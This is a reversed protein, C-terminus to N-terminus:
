AGGAATASTAALRHAGVRRYAQTPSMAVRAWARARRFYLQIDYELMFGYGGHFHLSRYTADRATESAFAFAMAALLPAREPELDFAWAAERALLGAGDSEAASDALRHAVAQFAGIKQGFAEREKVYDVGIELSREAIAALAAATLALWEDLAADFTAAADTGTALMEGDSVTVDALPMAGSNEPVVRDAGIPALVLDGDIMVVVDTAIAGAPVMKATGAVARTVAITILREGSLQQALATTAGVRELLRAAVVAEILPASGLTRGHQEAVLALDLMSAGWGGASESVAMMLVGMETIRDWLRPDFGSPEAARVRAPSSEKAYMASFADILQQQEDTPRLDM